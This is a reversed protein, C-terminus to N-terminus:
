RAGPRLSRLAVRWDADDRLTERRISYVLQMVAYVAGAARGLAPRGRGRV